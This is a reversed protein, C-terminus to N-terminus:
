NPSIAVPEDGLATLLPRLAKAITRQEAASLRDLLGRQAELSAAFAHDATAEGSSTLSVLVSRRDQPNPRRVILGATELRDLRNTMGGSTMQGAQALVTPSLAAGTGARRLATLTDLDGKHSLEPEASVVADLQIQIATAARLVRTIAALPTTDLEPYIAQWSEVLEDVYDNM